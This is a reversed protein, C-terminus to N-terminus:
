QWTGLVDLDPSYAVTIPTGVPVDFPISGTITEGPNVDAGDLGAPADKPLGAVFAVDIRQGDPLIM